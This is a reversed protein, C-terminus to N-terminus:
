AMTGIARGGCYNCSYAYMGDDAAINVNIPMDRGFYERFKQKVAPYNPDRADFATRTM